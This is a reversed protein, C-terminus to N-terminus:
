CSMVEQALKMALDVTADSNYHSHEGWRGLGYVSHGRCWLLLRNMIEPKRVTNLPYAYKNIFRFASDQEKMRSLNTETWYGKSGPCFNHRVLIRHYSLREDPYYIWQSDTDMNEPYYDICVSSHKLGRIDAVLSEPMGIIENYEIWPITTIIVDAAFTRGDVTTVSRSNFDIKDVQCEYEVHDKITEAM